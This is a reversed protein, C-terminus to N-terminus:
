VIGLIWGEIAAVKREQETLSPSFFRTLSGDQDSQRLWEATAYADQQHSDRGGRPFSHSWLAPYIEVVASKGPPMTWGDFPWFHVRDGARMRLFRLWPIGAHTLRRDRNLIIEVATSAMAISALFRRQQFCHTAERTYSFVDIPYRDPYSRGLGWNSSMRPKKEDLAGSDSM